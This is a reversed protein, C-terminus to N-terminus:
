WNGDDSDSAQVLWEPANYSKMEQRAKSRLLRRRYHENEGLYSSDGSLPKKFKMDWGPAQLSVMQGDLMFRMPFNKGPSNPLPPSVNSFLKPRALITVPAQTPASPPGGHMTLSQLNPAPTEPQTDDHQAHHPRGMNMAPQGHYSPDFDVNVDQARTRADQIAHGPRLAAPIQPTGRALHCSEPANEMQPPLIRMLGIHGPTMGAPWESSHPPLQRVGRSLNTFSPLGKIPPSSAPIDIAKPSSRSLDPAVFAGM